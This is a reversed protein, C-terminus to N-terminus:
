TTITAIYAVRQCHGMATRSQREYKASRVPWIKKAIQSFNCLFSFDQQIKSMILPPLPNRTGPFQLPLQEVFQHLIKQGEPSTSLLHSEILAANDETIGKNLTNQKIIGITKQFLVQKNLFNGINESTECPSFRHHLEFKKIELHSHLFKDKQTSVM